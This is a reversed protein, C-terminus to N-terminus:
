QMCWSGNRTGGDYPVALGRELLIAGVDQGDAIVRADIRFYKDRSPRVLSIQEAQSLVTRILDRAQRALQKERHCKGKIEPTDIGALRVLIHDGFIEPLGPISVMCTDGDYCTHYVVTRFPDAETPAVPTPVSRDPHCGLLVVGLLLCKSLIRM